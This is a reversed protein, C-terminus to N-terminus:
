TNPMGKVSADIPTSMPSCNEFNFKKLFNEIYHSQTLSLEKKGHKIRIGLIVDPEGIDKM